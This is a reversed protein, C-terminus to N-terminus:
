QGPPTIGLQQYISLVDPTGWAEAEKGGEFRVFINSVFSLQKGTPPIGLLTSKHTGTIRIRAALMNGEAVLHETTTYFDPFATRLAIIAQNFGERGKLEMGAPGHYVYGETVLEPVLSLDGTNHVEGVRQFTAKNEEVSM